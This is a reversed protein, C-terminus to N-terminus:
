IRMAEHKGIVSSHLYKGKSPADSLGKATEPSVDHYRYQRGGPFTITLHRTEPDYSHDEISPVSAKVAVPRRVKHTRPLTQLKRPKPLKKM